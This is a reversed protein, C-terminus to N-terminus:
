TQAGQPDGSILKKKKEFDEDSFKSWKEIGIEEITSKVIGM